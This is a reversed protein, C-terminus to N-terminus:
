PRRPINKVAERKSLTSLEKRHARVYRLVEGPDTWAYKRLAWGIAKRLFFEPSSLSPEIARYLLDLDTREKLGVQCLIASRRKWLNESRSWGLMERRMRRPFLGLLERLRHTAIPDVFDWWAGTVIMEEYMPLADLDQFPRARRDGTLEIAGYREERHGAGRWLSLVDRRWRSASYFDLGAFARRCASRVGPAGVGLFPMASKMYAQMAPARRSDAARRLEARLRRLLRDSV